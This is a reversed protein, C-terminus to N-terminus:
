GPPPSATRALTHARVLGVAQALAAALLLLASFSQWPPLADAFAPHDYFGALRPVPNYVAVALGLAYPLILVGSSVLLAGRGRAARRLLLGVVAIGVAAVGAVLAVGRVIWWLDSGLSSLGDSTIRGAPADGRAGSATRLAAYNVAAYAAALVPGSLLLILTGTRERM